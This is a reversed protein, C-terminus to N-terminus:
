SALWFDDGPVVTEGKDRTVCLGPANCAQGREPDVEIRYLLKGCCEISVIYGNYTIRADGQERLKKDYVQLRITELVKGEVPDINVTYHTPDVVYGRPALVRKVTHAVISPELLVYNDFVRIAELVKRAVYVGSRIDDSYATDGSIRRRSQERIYAAYIVVAAEYALLPAGLGSVPKAGLAGRLSGSYDVLLVRPKEGLRSIPEGRPDIVFVTAKVDPLKDLVINSRAVTVPIRSETLLKVPMRRGIGIAYLRWGRPGLGTYLTRAVVSVEFLSPPSAIIVHLKAADDDIM